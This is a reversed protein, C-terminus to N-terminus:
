CLFARTLSLVNETGNFRVVAASPRHDFHLPQLVVSTTSATLPVGFSKHGTTCPLEDPAPTIPVCLVGIAAHVAAYKAFRGM